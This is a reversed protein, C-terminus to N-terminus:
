CYSMYSRLKSTASHCRWMASDNAARPTRQPRQRPTMWFLNSRMCICCFTTWGSMTRPIWILASTAPSLYPAWRCRTPCSSSVYLPSPWSASPLAWCWASISREMGVMKSHYRALIPSPSIWIDCTHMPCWSRRQAMHMSLPVLADLSPHVLSMLCEAINHCSLSASISLLRHQRSSFISKIKVFNDVIRCHLACKLSPNQSKSQPHNTSRDVLSIPKTSLIQWISAPFSNSAAWRRASRRKPSYLQEKDLLFM